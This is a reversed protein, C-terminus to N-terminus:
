LLGFTLGGTYYVPSFLLGAIIDVNSEGPTQACLEECAPLFAECVVQSNPM